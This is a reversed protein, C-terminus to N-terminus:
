LTCAIYRYYNSAGLPNYGLGYRTHFWMRPQGDEEGIGSKVYMPVYPAYYIGADWENAGKYGIAIYDSAAYMDVYVRYKGGLTGIFASVGLNIPTITDSIGQAPQWHRLTELISAVDLSVVLFNGRGRMTTLAIQNAVKNIYNYLSYAKEQAWRGDADGGYYISNHNWTTSGGAAAQTLLEAIFKRNQEATLEDALIQSIQSEAELNHIARLDQALEDTYKAKLKYSDATVSTKEVVFGMEKISTGAVEAVAVSAFKAYDSFLYRYMAENTYVASVTTVAGAFPNADDVSDGATFSGSTIEVLINNNEKYRVVGIGSGTGNSTITTGATFGTADALTLVKATKDVTNVSDNHFISKMCFLLGTPGSMPQTGFIDMAILNPQGRRIIPVLVPDYKDVDGTVTKETLYNEILQAMIGRQDGSLKPYRGNNDSDLFDKHKEILVSLRKLENNNM